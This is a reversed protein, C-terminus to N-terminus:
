VTKKYETPRLYLPELPFSSGALLAARPYFPHACAVAFGGFCEKLADRFREIEASVFWIPDHVEDAITELPGIHHPGQRHGQRTHLTFYVEGRRADALVCMLECDAPMHPAAVLALADFSSLGTVSTSAPLALGKAAAIGARIGTFSGPGVGVLIADLKGPNLKELAPFLGGRAFTQEVVLRDDQLVALSGRETSTDLALTIM